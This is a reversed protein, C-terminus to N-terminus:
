LNFTKIVNCDKNIKWNSIDQNFQSRSFMLAMNKVNSVDWKYINGNFTSHAFMRCMNEVNSVNWNSIDSNFKLGYFMDSMDKVSSTDWNSIDGNFKLNFFLGSMDTILSTDIDNLDCNSGEKSIRDRIITVLEKRNRPQCSYNSFKSIDKGIKLAENIHSALTRMKTIRAQIREKNSLQLVNSNHQLIQKYEM